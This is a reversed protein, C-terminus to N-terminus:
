AGAHAGGERRSAAIMQDRICQTFVVSTRLVFDPAPAYNCEAVLDFTPFEETAALSLLIHPGSQVFRHAGLTKMPERVLRDRLARAEAERGVFSGVSITEHDSLACFHFRVGDLSAGDRRALLGNFLEPIGRVVGERSQTILWRACELLGEYLIAHQYNRVANVVTAHLKETTAEVKTLYTSIDYREIVEREPAKGAQGTRVVIPTIRNGLEERLFQCVELGAHETEMVVDVIALALDSMQATGQLFRLAEAKSCCEHVRLPIGYVQIAKLALRTVALVDPEDDVVLIEWQRRELM